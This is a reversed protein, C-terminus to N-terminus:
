FFVFSAVVSCFLLNAACAIWVSVFVLGGDEAVDTVGFAPGLLAAVDFVADTEIDDAGERALFAVAIGVRDTQTLRGM